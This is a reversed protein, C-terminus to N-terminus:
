SLMSIQRDDVYRERIVCLIYFLFYFVRLCNNEVACLFSFHCTYIYLCSHLFFDLFITLYSFTCSLQLWCRSSSSRGGTCVVRGWPPASSAVWIWLSPLLTRVKRFLRTSGGGAAQPFYIYINHDEANIPKEVFPKLHVQGNIEISDETEVVCGAFCGPPRVPNNQRRWRVVLVVTVSQM